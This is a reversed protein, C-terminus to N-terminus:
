PFYDDDRKTDRDYKGEHMNVQEPAPQRPRITRLAAWFGTTSQSSPTARARAAIAQSSPLVIPRYQAADVGYPGTSPSTPRARVVRQVEVLTLPYPALVVVDDVSESVVITLPQGNADMAEWPTGLNKKNKNRPPARPSCPTVNNHTLQPTFTTNNHPQLDITPACFQTQTSV